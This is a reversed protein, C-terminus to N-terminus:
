SFYSIVFHKIKIIKTILQRKYSNVLSNNRIYSRLYIPTSILEKSIAGLQIHNANIIFRFTDVPWAIKSTQKLLYSAGKKNISYGYTCYVSGLIPEGVIKNNEKYIITSRKLSVNGNWAGWFFLDYNKTYKSFTNELIVYDNIISDSEMILFHEHEGAERKLLAQWIKRHGLLCGIENANLAKSTREKSKSILKDLFPVNLYKPFIAEVEVIGKINEKLLNINELRDLEKKSYLIYTKISNIM